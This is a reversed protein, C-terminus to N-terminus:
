ELMTRTAFRRQDLARMVLTRMGEWGYIFAYGWMGMTVYGWYFNFPQGVVCFLVVYIPLSLALQPPASAAWAGALGVAAAIPICISPLFTLLGYTYLTSFLFPLGLWRIWPSSAAFDGAPAASHAAFAHALYYASYAVAGGIWVASERPRRSQFALLGCVLGYPAALERFFIAVVGLVAGLGPRNALYASLSLTIMVGAWVEGFVVGGEPAALAPLMAATLLMLAAVAKSASHGLYVGVATIIAIGALVALMATAVKVSLRAVLEYHLPTRWNFVQGTSYHRARLEDGVATYYPEGAAIRQITERHLNLDGVNRSSDLPSPASSSPVLTGYALLALLGALYLRAV